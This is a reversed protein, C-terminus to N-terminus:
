NIIDDYFMKRIWSYLYNKDISNTLNQGNEDVVEALRGGSFYYRLNAISSDRKRISEIMSFLKGAENFYYTRLRSGNAGNSHETVKGMGRNKGRRTYNTIETVHITSDSVVALDEKGDIKVVQYRRFSEIEIIKKDASARQGAASTSLLTISLCLRFIKSLMAVHVKEFLIFGVEAGSIQRLM